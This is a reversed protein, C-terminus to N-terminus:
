PGKPGFTVKGALRGAPRVSPRVSPCCIAPCVSSRVSPRVSLPNLPTLYCNCQLVSINGGILRSFIRQAYLQGSTDKIGLPWAPGQETKKTTLSSTGAEGYVEQLGPLVFSYVFVFM